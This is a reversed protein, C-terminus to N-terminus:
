AAENVESNKVYIEVKQNRSDCLRGTYTLVHNPLLFDYVKAGIVINQTKGYLKRQETRNYDAYQLAGEGTTCKIDENEDYRNNGTCVNLLDVFSSHIIHPMYVGDAPYMRSQVFSESDNSLMFLQRFLKRQAYLDKNESDVPLGYAVITVNDLAYSLSGAHWGGHREFSHCSTWSNGHSMTVYDCINLSFVIKAKSKKASLADSLKAFEKNYCGARDIAMAHFYENLIKAIKRHSINVSFEPAGLKRACIENARRMDRYGWTDKFGQPYTIIENGNTNESRLKDLTYYLSDFFGTVRGCENITFGAYTDYIARKFNGFAEKIDQVQNQKEFEVEDIIIAKERENWCPHKRFLDILPKKNNYWEIFNKTVGKDCGPEYQAILSKFCNYNYMDDESLNYDSLPPEQYEENLDVLEFTLEGNKKTYPRRIREIAYHTNSYENDEYIEMFTGASDWVKYIKGDKLLKIREGGVLLTTTYKDHPITNGNDIDYETLIPTKCWGGSGFDHTPKGEVVKTIIPKSGKLRVYAM